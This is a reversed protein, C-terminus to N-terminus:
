SATNRQSNSSCYNTRVLVIFQMGDSEREFPQQHKFESKQSGRLAPQNFAVLTVRFAKPKFLNDAFELVANAYEVGKGRGTLDPRIGMGIDLARDCYDGHTVQQNQGFSCYAILKSNEDLISYFSNQPHLFHQLLSADEESDNYFDYPPEYRWGLIALANSEDILHFTFM